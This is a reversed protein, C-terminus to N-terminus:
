PEISKQAHSIRQGKIVVLCSLCSVCSLCYYCIAFVTYTICMHYCCFIVHATNLTKLVNVVLILNDQHKLAKKNNSCFEEAEQLWQVHYMPIKFYQVFLVDTVVAFVVTNFSINLNEMFKVVNYFAYQIKQACMRSGLQTQLLQDFSRSGM